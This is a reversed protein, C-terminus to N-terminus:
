EGDQEGSVAPANAARQEASKGIEAEYRRWVEADRHLKKQQRILLEHRRLRQDAEIMSGLTMGSMQLFPSM